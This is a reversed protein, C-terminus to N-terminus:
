SINRKYYRLAGGGTPIARIHEPFDDAIISETTGDKERIANACDSFLSVLTAHKNAM